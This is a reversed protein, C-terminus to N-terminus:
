PNRPDVNVTILKKANICWGEKLDIASSPIFISEISSGDFARNKITQLESDLAFKISRINSYLFANNSISIVIYEQSEHKISRPILFEDRSEYCGIIEAKEEKENILYRISDQKVQKM